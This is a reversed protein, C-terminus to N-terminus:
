MTQFASEKERCVLFTPKLNATGMKMMFCRYGREVHKEIAATDEEPTGSGVGNLIPLKNHLMGGLLTHVPLNNAKGFIDYLAMNVAGRATLNRHVIHDLTSELGALRTPDQGLLYTAIIDRTVVMVSAPTEETFPNMPDAEGLGVIGEDTHVKFIVAHADTLTGYAKSLKYPQAFPVSIHFLELRIIKM